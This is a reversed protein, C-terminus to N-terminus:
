QKDRRVRYSEYQLEKAQQRRKEVVAAPAGSFTQEVSQRLPALDNQLNKSVPASGIRENLQGTELEYEEIAKLAEDKKGQRVAEAVSDKLKGFDERLVREAWIEKDISSIVAERDAVCEVKFHRDSTVRHRGEGHRYGLEMEGITYSRLAGTPVSFTLYIKRQRGALLDGPRIIAVGDLTEVPYGGADLLRVGGSLLIKLETGTAVINRTSEFEKRFIEAFGSPSDLFYYNGGGYDSITAMLVENFDYGVGVTSIGIGRQAALAAMSGLQRPSTIGQNALGDSILMVRRQRNSEGHRSLHADIGLQLGDGLNTGGGPATQRVQAALHSRGNGGLRVLPSIMAAENAYSVMAMRDHDGMYNLLQVIGNKADAIKPGAMSGSRDLVVVLDVPQVPETGRMLDDTGTLTISISLQGAGGQLVRTQTIAKDIAVHPGWEPAASLAPGNQLWFLSFCALTFLNRVTHSEKYTTKM